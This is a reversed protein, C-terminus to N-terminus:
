AHGGFTSLQRESIGLRNLAQDWRQDLPADFIIHSDMTVTLWANQRMEDELQGPAWGAYGLAVIYKEPGEGGAIAALVDRSTTIIIEDSLAVSSEWERDPSHLVFGRERHVPGGMVVSRGTISPDDCDIDLQRLVEGLDHEAPLNVNIGLAGEDNHQCLLTVGRAFNPDSLSPMAILFQRDLYAGSTDDSLDKLTAEPKVPKSENM